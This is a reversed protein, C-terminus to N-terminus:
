SCTTVRTVDALGSPPVDIVVGDRSGNGPCTTFTVTSAPSLYGTATYTIRTPGGLRLPKPLAPFTRVLTDGTDYTGSRNADVVVRWGNVYENGTSSTGAGPLLLVQQGSRAAESRALALSGTFDNAVSTVRNRVVFATLGPMAFTTVVALVVLTVMLEVLTFGRPRAAAPPRPVPAIKSM